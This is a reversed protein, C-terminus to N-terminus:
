APMSLRAPQAFDRTYLRYYLGGRALLEEHLGYDIIEGNDLVIIQDAREITTLRHAIVLTTRGEM